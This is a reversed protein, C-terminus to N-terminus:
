DMNPLILIDIKGKGLIFSSGHLFFKWRAFSQWYFFRQGYPLNL